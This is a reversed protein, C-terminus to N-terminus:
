LALDLSLSLLARVLNCDGLRRSGTSPIQSTQPLQVHTFSSMNSRIDFGGAELIPFSLPAPCMDKLLTCRTFVNASGSDVGEGFVVHQM